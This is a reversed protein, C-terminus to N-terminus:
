VCLSVYCWRTVLSLCMHVAAFSALRWLWPSLAGATLSAPVRVSLHVHQEAVQQLNCHGLVYHGFEGAFENDVASVERELADAKCLPALFFQAFRDLAGHLARPECDFQYNTLEQVAIVVM